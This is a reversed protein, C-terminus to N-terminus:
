TGTGSSDKGSWRTLHFDRTKDRQKPDVTSVDNGQIYQRPDGVKPEEISGVDVWRVCRTEEM